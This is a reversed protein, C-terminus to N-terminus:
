AIPVSEASECVIAARDLADLIAFSKSGFLSDLAEIIAGIVVAIWVILTDVLAPSSWDLEAFTRFLMSCASLATNGTM